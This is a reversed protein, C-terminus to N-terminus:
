QIQLGVGTKSHLRPAPVQHGFEAVGHSWAEPHVVMRKCMQRLRLIFFIRVFTQLNTLHALLLLRLFDFFCRPRRSSSPCGHSQVSRREGARGNREEGTRSGALRSRSPVQVGEGEGEGEEEEEHGRGGGGGEITLDPM